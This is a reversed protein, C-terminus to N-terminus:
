KKGDEIAGFLACAMAAPQQKLIRQSFVLLVATAASVAASLTFFVAMRGVKQNFSSSGSKNPTSLLAARRLQTL